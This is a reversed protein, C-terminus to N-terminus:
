DGNTRGADDFIERHWFMDPDRFWSSNEPTEFKALQSMGIGYRRCFGIIEWIDADTPQRNLNIFLDGVEGRYTEVFVMRDLWKFFAREDAEHYFLVDTAVIQLPKSM